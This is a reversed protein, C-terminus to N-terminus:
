EAHSSLSTQENTLIRLMAYDHWMTMKLVKRNYRFTIQYMDGWRHKIPGEIRLIRNRGSDDDCCIKQWSDRRLKISTGDCEAVQQFVRFGTGDGDKPMLRV